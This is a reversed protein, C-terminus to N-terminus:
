RSQIYTQGKTHCYSQNDTQTNTQKKMYLKCTNLLFVYLKVDFRVLYSFTCEHRMKNQVLTVNVYGSAVAVGEVKYSEGLLLM